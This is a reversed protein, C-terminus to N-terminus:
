RGSVCSNWTVSSPAPEPAHVVERPKLEVRVVPKAPRPPPEPELVPRAERGSPASTHGRSLLDFLPTTPRGVPMSM